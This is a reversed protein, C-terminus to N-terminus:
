KLASLQDMIDKKFVYVVICIFTFFMIVFVFMLRKPGAPKQPVYAGQIVTFAPTREQVKAKAIQLQSCMATYANYKLQMENELDQEKAKFSTLTLDANADAYNAYMNRAKDYAAKAERTLNEYYIMDVRAKRTRYDTIFNQLRVRVSDAMTACILKDQDKVTISIVDTKKDVSCTINDKIVDVISEQQKSLILLDSKDKVNHIINQEKEESFFDHIIKVLYMFPQKLICVKQYKTLYTYYDTEIDGVENKVKIYFLDVIFNSSNMLDPYLMPYIADSSAMNDLNFGFSTALSGLTGIGSGSENEPALTITTTYYRPQLFIWICSLIFAIFLVKAFLWRRDIFRKLVKRLDITDSNYGM